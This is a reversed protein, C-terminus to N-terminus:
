GKGFFTYLIPLPSAQEMKKFKRFKIVFYCQKKVSNELMKSMKEIMENSM